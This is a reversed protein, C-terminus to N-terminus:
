RYLEEKAYFFKLYNNHQIKKVRFWMNLLNTTKRFKNKYNETKIRWNFSKKQIKFNM